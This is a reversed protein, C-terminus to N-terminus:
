RFQGPCGTAAFVYKGVAIRLVGGNRFIIALRPDSKTFNEQVLMAVIVIVSDSGATIIAAFMLALEDLQIFVMQQKRNTLVWQM